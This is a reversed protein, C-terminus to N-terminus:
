LFQRIKNNNLNVVYMFDNSVFYLNEELVDIKEISRKHLVSEHCTELDVLFLGEEGGLYLFNHYIHFCKCNRNTLCRIEKDQVTYIFNDFSNIYYLEDKHAIMSKPFQNKGLKRIGVQNNKMTYLAGNDMSNSLYVKDKVKIIFDGQSVIPNEDPAQKETDKPEINTEDKLLQIDKENIQIQKQMGVITTCLVNIASSLEVIQDRIEGTINVNEIIKKTANSLSNNEM